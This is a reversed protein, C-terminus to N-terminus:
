NPAATSDVASGGFAEQRGFIDVYKYLSHTVRVSSDDHCLAPVIFKFQSFLLSALFIPLHLPPPDYSPAIRQYVAAESALSQVVYDSDM